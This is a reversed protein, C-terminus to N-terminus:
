LRRYLHVQYRMNEVEVPYRSGVVERAVRFWRSDEGIRVEWKGRAVELLTHNLLFKMPYQKQSTTAEGDARTGTSSSGSGLSIESYSGPSDVVLLHAKPQITETLDLLMRTTQARSATFLENLTFMITVLSANHIQDRLATPWESLIDSQTFSVTLNEPPIFPQNAAKATASAYASLPPPTTLVQTLKSVVSSWDAIDVLNVHLRQQHSSQRAFVAALAVLEAGAGGGICLVQRQSTDDNGDDDNAPLNIQHIKDLSSFLDAYGLARAASWRLAYADLYEPKSFATHFDRNYLHGKVEQIQAKLDTQDPFPFALSFHNLIIQQLEAPLAHSSSESDKSKDQKNKVDKRRPAM